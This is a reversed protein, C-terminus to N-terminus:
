RKRLQPFVIETFSGFREKKLLMVSFVLLISCVYSLLCFECFSKLVLAEIVTLYTSFLMSFITLIPLVLTILSNILDDSFRDNKISYYIIIMSIIITLYFLVGFFSVPIGFIKAYKSFNVTKCNFSQNLSIICYLNNSIEGYFLYLSDIVGILSIILSSILYFHLKSNSTIKNKNLTSM